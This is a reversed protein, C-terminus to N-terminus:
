EPHVDEGGIAPRHEVHEVVEQAPQTPQCITNRRTVGLRHRCDESAGLVLPAAEARVGNRNPNREGVFGALQGAHPPGELVTSDVHAVELEAVSGVAPAAHERDRYSQAVLRRHLCGQFGLTQQEGVSTRQM